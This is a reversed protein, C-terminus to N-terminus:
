GFENDGNLLLSPFVIWKNQDTRGSWMRGVVGSDNKKKGAEGEVLVLCSQGAELMENQEQVNTHFVSIVEQLRHQKVDDSIDVVM